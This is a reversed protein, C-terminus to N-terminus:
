TELRLNGVGLGGMEGVRSFSFSFSFSGGEGRVLLWYGIVLLWYGIVL